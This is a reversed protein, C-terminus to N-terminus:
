LSAVTDPDFLEDDEVTATRPMCPVALGAPGARTEVVVVFPAAGLPDLDLLLGSDFVATVDGRINALGLVVPPATPVPTLAPNAVVSRVTSVAVSLPCAEDEVVLARTPM